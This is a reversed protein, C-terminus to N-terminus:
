DRAVQSGDSTVDPVDGTVAQETLRCRRWWTWVYYVIGATVIISVSQKLWISVDVFLFPSVSLRAIVYLVLAM